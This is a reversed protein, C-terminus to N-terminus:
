PPDEAGTLPVLWVTWLPAPKLRAQIRELAARSGALCFVTGGSGTMRAGTGGADRLAGIAEAIVPAVRCAAAELDNRGEPRPSAAGAEAGDPAGTIIPAGAERTLLRGERGASFTRFVEATSVPVGPHLLLAWTGTWAPVPTVREGRGGVRAAGGHLFFPVDSGLGEAMEALAEASLGLGWLRDLGKLVAAADSSGGGLGAGAPIAKHLRVRAGRGGGTRAIVARAARAALNDDGALALVDCTFDVAGPPGDALELRDYLGV